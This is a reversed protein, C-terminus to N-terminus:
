TATLVIMWLVTGVRALEAWTKRGPYRDASRWVAVAVFINYPVPAAFALVVLLTDADRELLALFALHTALNILLAYGIAYQWFAKGLPIEGAWLQKVLRTM